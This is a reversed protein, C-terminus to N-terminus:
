YIIKKKIISHKKDLKAEHKYVADSVEDPELSFFSYVYKVPNYDSYEEIKDANKLATEKLENEKLGLPSEKYQIIYGYNENESSKFDNLPLSYAGAILFSFFYFIFIIKLCFIGLLKNM